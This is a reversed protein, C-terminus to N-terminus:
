IANFLLTSSDCISNCQWMGALVVLCAGSQCWARGCARSLYVHVARAGPVAVHGHCTSICRDPVLCQWMGTVLLCADSQCASDCARLLCAHVARARVAVHEHCVPMFREPVLCQWMGALVVLCAGSQCWASGCARSLCVREARAGPVAVHGHCAPMCREPVLCEWMGTVLLCAGSQWRFAFNFYHRRYLVWIFRHPSMLGFVCACWYHLSM